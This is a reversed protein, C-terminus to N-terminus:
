KNSLGELGPTKWEGEMIKKGTFAREYSVNRVRETLLFRLLLKRIQTVALTASMTRQPNM